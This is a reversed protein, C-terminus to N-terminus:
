QLRSWWDGWVLFRSCSILAHHSQFKCSLDTLCKKSLVECIYIISELVKAMVVELQIWLEMSEFISILSFKVKTTHKKQVQETERSASLQKNCSSNIWLPCFFLEKVFLDSIFHRWSCGHLGGRSSSSPSSCWEISRSCCWTRSSTSSPSYKTNFM